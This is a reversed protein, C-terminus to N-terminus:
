GCPGSPPAPHVVLALSRCAYAGHFTCNDMNQKNSSETGFFSIHPFVLFIGSSLEPSDFRGRVGISKFLMVSRRGNRARYKQLFIGEMHCFTAHYVGGIQIVIRSGNTDRYRQLLILNLPRQFVGLKILIRGLQIAFTFAFFM